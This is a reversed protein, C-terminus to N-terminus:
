ILSLVTLPRCSSEVGSGYGGVEGNRRDSSVLHGTQAGSDRRYGDPVNSKDAGYEVMVENFLLVVVVNKM